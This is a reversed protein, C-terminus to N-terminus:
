EKDGGRARKLERAALKEVWGLGECFHPRGLYLERLRHHQFGYHTHYGLFRISFFFFRTGHPIM